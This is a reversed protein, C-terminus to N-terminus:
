AEADGANDETSAAGNESSDESSTADGGLHSDDMEGDPAQSLHDDGSPGDGTSVSHDGGGGDEGSSTGGDGRDHSDERERGDRSESGRDDDSREDSSPRSSEPEKSVVVNTPEVKGSQDVILTANVSKSGAPIDSISTTGRNSQTEVEVDLHDVEATPISFNGQADTVDSDGTNLITVVADVVPASSTTLVKGDFTVGGTGRTGGGCACCLLLMLAVLIKQLTGSYMTRMTGIAVVGTM